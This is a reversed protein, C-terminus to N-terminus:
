KIQLTIYKNFCEELTSIFVVEKKDKLSCVDNENIISFGNDANYISTSNGMFSYSSELNFHNSFNDKFCSNLNNNKVSEYTYKALKYEKGLYSIIEEVCYKEEEKTLSRGKSPYGLYWAGKTISGIGNDECIEVNEKNFYNDFMKDFFSRTGGDRYIQIKM